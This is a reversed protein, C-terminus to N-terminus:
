LILEDLGCHVIEIKRWLDPRTWRMFQSRGYSSVCAVFTAHDLKVELSLWPAREFEDPGHATFSYPIGSFRSALMAIAASNTGFHAHIHQVTYRRCWRALVAAEALYALHRLVGRDSRWAIKIAQGVAHFTQAPRAILTAVCDRAIRVIPSELIYHTQGKETKDAEDVLNNGPRLAFRCVTMGLSELARIERRVFTHSVAPYQNVFYAIRVIQKEQRPLADFEPFQSKLLTPPAIM